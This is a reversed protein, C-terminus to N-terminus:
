HMRRFLQFALKSLKLRAPSHVHSFRGFNVLEGGFKAKFDRVGYEEGPKGAGGFDYVRYGRNVGWEFIHWHMLENPCYRAYQRDVGGYWGYITDRYVLELSCAAPVGNARALFFVALANPYLQSFVAEFLSRDALPVQARRYTKKLVDYWRDLESRDTVATTRIVQERLGHRIKKRTRKGISQLIRSSSRDLDILFNLHEEYAFGNQSLVPALGSIDSLNRLETFLVRAKMARKYAKLLIDLAKQGRRDPKCLVSGHVIARSTLRSLPGTVLAIRTAVFLALPRGGKDVMAWLDPHYGHTRSFVQFMEPTHFITGQPHTEVFERWTSEDLQRVLDM